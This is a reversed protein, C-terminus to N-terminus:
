ILILQKGQAVRMLNACRILMQKAVGALSACRQLQNVLEVVVKPMLAGVMFFSLIPANSSM